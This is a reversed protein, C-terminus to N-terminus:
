EVVQSTPKMDPGKWQFTLKLDASVQDLQGRGVSGDGEGERLGVIPDPAQPLQGTGVRGDGPGVASSYCTPRQFSDAPCLIFSSPGVPVPGHPAAMVLDWLSVFLVQTQVSSLSLFATRTVM